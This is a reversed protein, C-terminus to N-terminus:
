WPISADEWRTFRGTPGDRGLLAVRTIERAGQEVTDTGAFGNLNTSTFGPSVANVPIAENELELAMAVTLANLATKSGPYIPGFISRYPFNADSASRHFQRAEFWLASSVRLNQNARPIILVKLGNRAAPKKLLASARQCYRTRRCDSGCASRLITAHQRRQCTASRESAM